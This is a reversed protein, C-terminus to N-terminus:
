GAREVRNRGRSKAVYLAADARALCDDFRADARPDIEAVGASITLGEGRRPRRIGLREVEERIRDAAQVADELPQEPFLVVLEEGGYRFVADGARVCRKIAAAVQKLAEDGALHGFGDNLEKFRDLDFIALSFTSGYRQARAFASSLEEEMRLRNGLGTLADTRSVTWLQSSDRRLDDTREALKRHLAVVRSASVLRAELEDIDIPKKQYDDAGAAMGALLHERDHHGTMLVFYTYPADEIARIRRCLEAGNARPMEWDSVVVDARRAEHLRWAEEGDAAARCSHGLARISAVLAHRAVPDDEAVIVDLVRLPRAAPEAGSPAFTPVPEATFPYASM